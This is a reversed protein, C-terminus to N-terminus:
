FNVSLNSLKEIVMIRSVSNNNGNGHATGYM